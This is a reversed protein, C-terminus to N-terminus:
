LTVATHKSEMIPSTGADLVPVSVVGGVSASADALAVLGYVPLALAVGDPFLGNTDTRQAASHQATCHRHQTCAGNLPPMSHALRSGTSGRIAPENAHKHQKGQQGQHLVVERHHLCPARDVARHQHEGAAGGLDVECPQLGAGRHATSPNPHTSPSANSTTSAADSQQPTQQGALRM